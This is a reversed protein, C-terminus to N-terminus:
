VLALLLVLVLCLHLPTAIIQGEKSGLTSFKKERKEEMVGRKKGSLSPSLHPDLLSVHAGLGVFFKNLQSVACDCDYM